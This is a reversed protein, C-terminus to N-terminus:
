SWKGLLGGSFLNEKAIDNTDKEESFSDNNADNKSEKPKRGLIIKSGGTKTMNPRIGLKGKLRIRSGSRSGKIRIIRSSSSGGSKSSSGGGAGTISGTGIRIGLRGGTGVGIGSSSSGSKSSSGSSSGGGTIGM